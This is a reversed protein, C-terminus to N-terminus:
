TIIKFYFEPKLIIFSIKLFLYIYGTIPRARNPNNSNKTPNDKMIESKIIIATIKSTLPIIRTTSAADM